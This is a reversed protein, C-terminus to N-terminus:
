GGVGLFDLLAETFERQGEAAGGVTIVGYNTLDRRGGGTGGASGIAVTATTIVPIADSLAGAVDAWMRATDSYAGPDIGFPKNQGRGPGPIVIPPEPAQGRGGKSQGGGLGPAGGGMGPVVPEGPTVGAAAMAERFRREAEAAIAAARARQAELIRQVEDESNGLRLLELAYEEQIARMRAEHRDAEADRAAEIAEREADYADEVSQRYSEFATMRAEERAVAVAHAADEAAIQGALAERREKAAMRDIKLQAELRGLLDDALKVQKEATEIAAEDKKVLPELISRLRQAQVVGGALFVEVVRRDKEAIAGSALADSLMAREDDTFTDVFKDGQETRLQGGRQRVRGREDPLKDMLSKMRELRTITATLGANTQTVTDPDIGMSRLFDRQEASLTGGKELLELYLNARDLRAEEADLRADEADVEATIAALRRKHAEEEEAIRAAIVERLRAEREDLRKMEAKHARERAEIEADLLDMAQDHAQDEADEASEQMAKIADEAAKMAEEYLRKADGAADNVSDVAERVRKWAAVIGDLGEEQGELALKVAENRSDWYDILAQISELEPDLETGTRNPDRERARKELELARKREELPGKQAKYFREWDNMLGDIFDGWLRAQREPEGSLAEISRQIEEFSRESFGLRELLSAQDVSYGEGTMMALLDSLSGAAGGDFFAALAENMRRVPGALPDRANFERAVIALREYEARMLAMNTVAKAIGGDADGTVLGGFAAATVLGAAQSMAEVAGATGDHIGLALGAMMAMGIEAFVRSPSAIGLLGKLWDLIGRIADWFSSKLQALRTDVGRKIGDVIGHGIEGAKAIADQVGTKLGDIANRIPTLVIEKFRALAGQTAKVFGDWIERGKGEVTDRVGSLYSLAANIKETVSAVLPGLATRAASVVGAWAERAKTEIQAKVGTLVALAQGVAGAIVAQVRSWAAAAEAQVSAWASALDAKAENLPGLIADKVDQWADKAAQVVGSSWAEWQDRVDDLWGVIEARAEELKEQISRRYEEFQEQIHEAILVLDARIDEPIQMWIDLLYNYIGDQASQIAADFAAWASDIGSQIDAWASDFAGAIPVLWGYITEQVEAGLVDLQESVDLGGLDLDPFPILSIAQIGDEVRQAIAAGPDWGGIADQLGDALGKGAEGTNALGNQLRELWSMDPELNFGERFDAWARSVGDAFGGGATTGAAAFAAASLGESALAASKAAEAFAAGAADGGAAAEAEGGGFLGGLWGGAKSASAGADAMALAFASGAELGAAEAEAEAEGGGFWGRITGGIDISSLTDRLGALKEGVGDAFETVATRVGMFDTTWAAIIAAVAAIAITVPGGLLAVLASLAGTLGGGGAIAAGITALPGGLAALGAGVATVVGGGVSLVTTIASFAGALTTIIPVLVSLGTFAGWAVAVTAITEKHDVLFTILDILGAALDIVVPAAARATDALSAFVEGWDIGALSDRLGSLADFIPALAGGVDGTGSMLAAVDFDAFAGEIMPTIQDLVPGLQNLAETGFDTIAKLVPTFALGAKIQLTELSGWFADVSGQLNNLREAAVDAASTKLMEANLGQVGERGQEYLVNAARIADSGFMTEEALLRQEATMDGLADNLVGAVDAMSKVNGAADFFQNSGDETIIGLEKFLGIQKETTPILNMMFAKLSTGADSGVIGAKGMATIAVATDDFKFGALDAVAGVASLSYAFQNVDIASASAAGAILDVYQPLEAASAGFNNMAAAAVAAATPLDVEGAAALAVAADAAGNLVDEVSVGAKVLEEIAGAAEQASFSTEAGIRLAAEKVLDMEDATAGSVAKINSLGAEFTSAKGVASALGAGAGVAAIGIGTVAVGAALAGAKLGMMAVGSRKASGGAQADLAGLDKIAHKLGGGDYDYTLLGTLKELQAM